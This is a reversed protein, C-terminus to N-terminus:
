RKLEMKVEDGRIIGSVSTPDKNAKEGLELCVKM